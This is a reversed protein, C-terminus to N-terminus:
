KNNETDKKVEVHLGSSGESLELLMMIVRAIEKLRKEKEEESIKPAVIHITTGGIHYTKDYSIEGREGQM